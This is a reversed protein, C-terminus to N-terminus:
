FVKANYLDFVPNELFNLPQGGLLRVVRLPRSGLCGGKGDSSWLTHEECFRGWYSVWEGGGSSSRANSGEVETLGLKAM